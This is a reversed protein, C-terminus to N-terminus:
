RVRTGAPQGITALMEAFWPEDVDFTKGGAIREFEIARLEGGREVDHGIVGSVGALASDVALRTMSAILEQDFQNAAASRSFYGSKQVMNKEAGIAKGFRKAFWQGPNVTDLKVHGFPDKEVPTGDAELQAVIDSVGAGESLFINVCGIEDMISRLRTAEADLDIRLEPVYVAHIAWRDPTLGLSPVWEQRAHWDLYKRAANATLWGCGRGMVEHVILMRPNAGHEALINRAFLATQEAATDAGLTQRIPVVDNDITKPLGVVTLGYDNTALYAALDAATTNTDDGGITHLVDIGDARLQTAAVHLPDDGERVLGRKILDARNTLKVRSNGIPSGGFHHLRDITRRAEDDVVIASGTLLGHYGHTYGILEVDPALESYRTVLGAIASSLCPAYGGGTLM